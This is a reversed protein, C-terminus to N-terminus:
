ITKSQKEIKFGVTIQVGPNNIVEFSGDLQKSLVKMMEMGLSSSEALNFNGPLGKGNDAIRLQVTDESIIRAEIIIDGGDTDFAYKIANTIAENLILGM